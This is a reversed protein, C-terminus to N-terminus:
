TNTPYRPGVTKGALTGRNPSTVSNASEVGGFLALEPTNILPQTSRRTGGVAPSLNPTLTHQAPSINYSGGGGGLSINGDLSRTRLGADKPKSKTGGM